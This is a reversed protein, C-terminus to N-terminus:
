LLKNVEHIWTATDFSVVRIKSSFQKDAMNFSHEVNTYHIFHICWLFFLDRKMFYIIIPMWHHFRGCVEMCQGWFIGSVLFITIRHSSYGPVCDIKIGASPIAWSHIVDKSSALIHLRIEIPMAVAGTAHLRIMNSVGKRMPRFQNKYLDLNKTSVTKHDSSFLHFFLYNNLGALNLSGGMFENNFLLFDKLLIFKTFNTNQYFFERSFESSFNIPDILPFTRRVESLLTNNPSALVFKPLLATLGNSAYYRRYFYERKSLLDVLTSVTYTHSASGTLPKWSSRGPTSVGSISTSSLNPSRNMNVLTWYPNSTKLIVRLNPLTPELFLADFLMGAKYWNSVRAYFYPTYSWNSLYNKRAKSLKTMYDSSDNVEDGLGTTYEFSKNSYPVGLLSYRSVSSPQIELSSWRSQWDFWLYRSSDSKLSLLFPIEAFYISTTNSLEPILSNNLKLFKNYLSTSMFSESNKSLLSEFSTRKESILPHKVYSNSVDQLRANSRGEDFRSRFVKQIASYTVVSNKTTSRLKLVNSTRLAQHEGALIIPLLNGQNLGTSDTGWLGGEYDARFVDMVQTYPLPQTFNINKSLLAKSNLLYLYKISKLSDFPNEVFNLASESSFPSFNKLNLLNADVLAEEAFLPLPNSNACLNLDKLFPSLVLEGRLSRPTIVRQTINFLEEQNQLFNREKSDQFILNYDEHGFSSYTSEWFLDELMEAAQWNRFDYDAYDSCLPLYLFKKTDLVDLTNLYKSKTSSHLWLHLWYSSFVQNPAAEERSKLMNPTQDTNFPNFRDYSQLYFVNNSSVLPSHANPMFTNNNLIKSVVNFNQWLSASSSFLNELSTNLDKFSILRNCSSNLNYNNKSLHTSSILRSNREISPLQSGRSKLDTFRNEVSLNTINSLCIGLLDKHSFESHLNDAGSIVLSNSIKKRVRRNILYKFPNSFQKNCCKEGLLTNGAPSGTFTSRATSVGSVNYQQLLKNFSLLTGSGYSLDELTKFSKSYALYNNLTKNDLLSNTTNITSRLSSISHQRVTGYSLSKQPLLDNGYLLMVKSYASEFDSKSNFLESPNTKSFFQIKKFAAQEKLTNVGLQSFNM